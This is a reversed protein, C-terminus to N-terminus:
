VVLLTLACLGCLLPWGLILGWGIIRVAPRYEGRKRKGRKPKEM